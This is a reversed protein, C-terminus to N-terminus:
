HKENPVYKPLADYKALAAEYKKRAIEVGANLVAMREIYVQEERKTKKHNKYHIVILCPICIVM